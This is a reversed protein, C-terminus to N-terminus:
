KVANCYSHSIFRDDQNAVSEEPIENNTERAMGRIVACSPFIDLTTGADHDVEKMAEQEIVM